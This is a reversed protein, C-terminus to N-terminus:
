RRCPNLWLHRQVATGSEPEIRWRGFGPRAPHLLGGERYGMTEVEYDDYAPSVFTIVAGVYRMMENDDDYMLEGGYGAEGVDWVGNQNDDIFVLGPIFGTGAVVM